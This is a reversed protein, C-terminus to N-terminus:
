KKKTEETALLEHMKAITIDDDTESIGDPGSSWVDYSDKHIPGPSAYNYPAGWPDKNLERVYKKQSSVLSDLSAPFKDNHELAFLDIATEYSKIDGLAARVRADEARGAFSLTVMGALIAIIITVLILEILTFGGNASM